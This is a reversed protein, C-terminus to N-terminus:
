STAPGPCAPRCAWPTAGAKGHGLDVVLGTTKGVAYLSLVAQDALFLGNLNFREFLMQALRERDAQWAMHCASAM